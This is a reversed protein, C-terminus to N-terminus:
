RWRRLPRPKDLYAGGHGGVGRRAVGLGRLVGAGRWGRARHRRRAAAGRLVLLVRAQPPLRAAAALHLLSGGEFGGDACFHERQAERSVTLCM